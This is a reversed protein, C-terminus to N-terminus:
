FAFFQYYVQFYCNTNQWITQMTIQNDEGACLSSVSTLSAPSNNDYIMETIAGALLERNDAQCAGTGKYAFNISTNVNYGIIIYNYCMIYNYDPINPLDTVQTTGVSSNGTGRQWPGYTTTPLNGQTCITYGNVNCSALGNMVTPLNSTLTSNFNSANTVINSNYLLNNSDDTTINNTAGPLFVAPTTVSTPITCTTWDFLGTLTLNVKNTDLAYLTFNPGTYTLTYWLKLNQDLTSSPTNDLSNTFQLGSTNYQFNPSTYSWKKYNAFGLGIGFSSSIGGLIIGGNQFMPNNNEDTLYVNIVFSETNTGNPNGGNALSYGFQFTPNLSFQSAPIVFVPSTYTQGTTLSSLGTVGMSYQLTGSWQQQTIVNTYTSSQVPLDLATPAFVLDNNDLTLNTTTLTNCGTISHNQMVIDGAVNGGSWAESTVYNTYNTNTLVINSGFNLYSGTTGNPQLTNSNNNFAIYSASTLGHNNFNIDQGPNLNTPIPVNASINNQTIVQNGVGYLLNSDTDISLSDGASANTFSLSGVDTIPHSLFDTNSYQGNVENVTICLQTGGTEGSLVLGGYLTNLVYTNSNAGDLIGISKANTINNSNMDLDAEIPNTLLNNGNYSINGSTDCAINRITSSSDIMGVTKTTLTGFNYLSNSGFVYGGGVTLLEVGDYLPAGTSIQLQHGGGYISPVNLINHNNMNLDAIIPGTDGAMVQIQAMEEALINVQNQLNNLKINTLFSSM